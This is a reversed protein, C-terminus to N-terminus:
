RLKGIIENYDSRGRLAILDKENEIKMRETLGLKIAENLYYVASDQMGNKSYLCAQLFPQESNEPDALKYIRLVKQAFPFNNEAVAKSSYSWSALSIYGLIRQNSQNNRDANLAKIQNNWWDLERSEFSNIIEKKRQDEYALVQNQKRRAEKFSLSNELTRLKNELNDVPEIQNLMSIEEHLLLSKVLINKENAASKDIMKKFDSILKENRKTNKNRMTNFSSWYFAHTFSISDPWEHKGVWEVLTHPIKSQDLSSNFNIVETYNMDHSGAFALMPIKVEISGPPLAAGCYIATSFGPVSNGSVLAAKAGGSFGALSIRGAIGPLVSTAEHLLDGAIKMSQEFDMGNKSDNSGVLIFQFNDALSKYKEVPYNGNGHPDLFIIVPYKEKGEFSRPIYYAFSSGNGSISNTVIGAEIIKKVEAAPENKIEAPHKEKTSCASLFLIALFGIWIQRFINKKLVTNKFVVNATIIFRL